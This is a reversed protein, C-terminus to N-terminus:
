VAMSAIVDGHVGVVFLQQNEILRRTPMKRQRTQQWLEVTNLFPLGYPRGRCVGPTFDKIDRVRAIVLYM